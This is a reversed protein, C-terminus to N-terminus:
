FTGKRRMGALCRVSCPSDGAEGFSATPGLVLGGLPVDHLRALAVPGVEIGNLPDSLSSAV